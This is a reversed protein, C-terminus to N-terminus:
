NVSRIEMALSGLIKKVESEPMADGIWIAFGDSTAESIPPKRNISGMGSLAMFGGVTSLSAFLIMIEFFLPFMSPFNFFGKGGYIIPWDILTIYGIYSINATFGTIGGILTIFPLWSRKLGMAESMGHIPFPAFTDFRNIGADRVKKAAELLDHADKVRVVYGSDVEEYSFLGEKIEKFSPM